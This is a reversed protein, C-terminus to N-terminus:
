YWSFFLIVQKEKYVQFRVLYVRCGVGPMVLAKNQVDAAQHGDSVQTCCFLLQYVVPILQFLSAHAPLPATGQVGCSLPEAQPDALLPLYPM